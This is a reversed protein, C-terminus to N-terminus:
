KCDIKKFGFKTPKYAKNIGHRANNRRLKNYRLYIM